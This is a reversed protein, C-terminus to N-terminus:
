FKKQISVMMSGMWVYEGLDFALERYTAELSTRMLFNDPLVQQWTLGASKSRLSYTSVEPTVGSQFRREDPLLGVSASFDLYTEENKFYRRVTISSSYTSVLRNTILSPRFSLWYKNVYWGVSGTYITARNFSEFYLHRLGLSAELKKSVTGYVEAGFRHKPFLISTSGGYNVYAYIRKSIKPYLEAEPQVGQKLFRNTYNVRVISTGWTNIRSVQVSAHHAPNFSRNFIDVGYKVGVDYKLQKAALQSKLFMGREHQPNIVLLQDLTILAENFRNLLSLVQSKKFLLEDSSPYYELGRSVETLADQFQADWIEVDIRAHIAEEHSPMQEMVLQLHQRAQNYQKDWAYSRALLMRADQHQPQKELITLLLLRAEEYKGAFAKQRARQFTEDSNEVSQNLQALVPSSVAICVTFFIIRVINM